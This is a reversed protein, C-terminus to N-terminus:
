PERGTALKWTGVAWSWWWISSTLAHCKQWVQRADQVEPTDWWSSVDHWIENVHAAAEEPNEFLIKAKRLHDFQENAQKCLPWDCPDWYCITPVNAAMAIHLTTGPYDLVLLRCKVLSDHLEGDLTPLDPFYRKMYAGDQLAQKAGQHRPRYCLEERPGLSLSNVFIQKNERYTLWRVPSPCADFRGYNIMGAGVFILRDNRTVHTNRIKSLMPSPLPISNCYFDAHKTWGWSIFAHYAYETEVAWPEVLGVGYSGGHQFGVVREGYEVSFANILQNRTDTSGAHTVTLRGPYFRLREVQKLIPLLGPGFSSPLTAELFEDLISIYQNPFEKLVADDPKFDRGSAPHRPLVNILLGYFLRVLKTGQVHDFGLRGAFASFPKRTKFTITDVSIEPEDPSIEVACNVPETIWSKPVVRRLMLSNMWFIFSPDQSLLGVFDTVNEIDWAPTEKVVQVRLPNRGYHEVLLKINCYCRWTAQVAMVMWLSLFCRWMTPSFNRGTVANMRDTWSLAVQNALRRTLADVQVLASSDPFADLFPLRDWGEFDDERDVFCWPGAAIDRAPDFDMDIQSLFLRPVTM